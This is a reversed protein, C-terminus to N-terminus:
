NRHMIKDSKALELSLQHNVDIYFFRFKHLTYLNKDFYRIKTPIVLIKSSVDFNKDCVRFKQLETM